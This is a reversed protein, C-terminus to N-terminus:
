SYFKEGRELMALIQLLRRQRTEPRKADQLRYTIAYTNRKSLTEFFAKAERNGELAQLLDEPMEAAAPSSYAKEWRGDAKAAAIEKLGSPKMRGGAVLREAHRTNNKSWRSRPRRPTFKQRWSKDDFPKKQGDIWGWCLASDLAEPYTVTPLGSGKKYIRLWLGEPRFYNEALWAEWKDASEFSLIQLSDSNKM